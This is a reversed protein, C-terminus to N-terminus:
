VEPVNGSALRRFFVDFAARSAATGTAGIAWTMAFLVAAEVRKIRAAEPVGEVDVPARAISDAVSGTAASGDSADQKKPQPVVFEDLQASVLRMAATVLGAPETPSLETVSRKVFRLCPPLFRKLLGAITAVLDSGLSAPLTGLWSTLLPQWGLQQPELYVM